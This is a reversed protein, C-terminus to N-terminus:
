PARQGYAQTVPSFLAIQLIEGPCTGTRKARANRNLMLINVAVASRSRYQAALAAAGYVGFDYSSFSSVKARKNGGDPAGGSEAKRKRPGNETGPM